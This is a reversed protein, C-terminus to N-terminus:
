DLIVLAVLHSFFLLSADESTGLTATTAAPCPGPGERRGFSLGDTRMVDGHAMQANSCAHPSCIRSLRSPVFAELRVGGHRRFVKRGM